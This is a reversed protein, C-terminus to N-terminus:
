RQKLRGSAPKLSSSGRFSRSPAPSGLFARTLQITFAGSTEAANGGVGITVLGGVENLTFSADGGSTGSEAQHSYPYLNADFDMGPGFMEWDPTFAGSTVISHVTEFSDAHFSVFNYRSTDAGNDAASVRRCPSATLNLAYTGATDLVALVPCENMTLEYGGFGGWYYSTAILQFTGSTPAVFFIVSNLGSDGQAEDDSAALPVNVGDGNKGWLTLQSDVSDAGGHTPDPINSETFMYAKGKSLSVTYSEYPVRNDSWFYNAFVCSSDSFSSTVTDGAHMAGVNCGSGLIPDLLTDSGCALAAVAAGFVALRGFLSSISRM